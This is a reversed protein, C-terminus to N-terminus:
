FGELIFYDKDDKGEELEAYEEPMEMQMFQELDILTQRQLEGMGEAEEGEQLLEKITEAYANRRKQVLELNRRIAEDDPLIRIAAKLAAEGQTMFRISDRIMAVLLFPDEMDLSHLLADLFVRQEQFMVELLAEQQYIDQGILEPTTSFTGANYLAAAKVKDDTVQEVLNSIQEYKKEVMEDSRLLKITNNYKVIDNSSWVMPKAATVFVISAFLILTACICLVTPQQILRATFSPVKETKLREEEILQSFLYDLLSNIEEVASQDPEDVLYSQYFIDRAKNVTDKWIDDDPERGLWFTVPSMKLRAMLLHTFILECRLLYDRIDIPEDILVHFERWLREPESLSENSRVRGFQWGMYLALILILSGMLVLVGQQLRVPDDIEGKIDLLPIKSVNPPFYDGIHVQPADIRYAHLEGNSDDATTFYVTPPALQYSSAPDVDVTQLIFELLYENVGNEILRQQEIIDRRSFPFFGIGNKFTEIDPNIRDRRWLLRIKLSALEGIRYSNKDFDAWGRIVESDGINESSVDTFPFILEPKGQISLLVVLLSIFVLVFSTAVTGIVFRNKVLRKIETM